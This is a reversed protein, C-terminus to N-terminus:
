QERARWDLMRRQEDLTRLTWWRHELCLGCPGGGTDLPGVLVSGSAFRITMVRDSLATRSRTPTATWGLPAVDYHMPREDLATADQMALFDMLVATATSGNM